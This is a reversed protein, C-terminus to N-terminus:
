VIQSSKLTEFDTLAENYKNGGPMYLIAEIKENIENIAKKMELIMTIMNILTHGIDIIQTKILSNEYNLQTFYSINQREKNDM